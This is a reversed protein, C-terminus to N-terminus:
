AFLDSKLLSVVRYPCLHCVQHFMHYDAFTMGWDGDCNVLRSFNMFYDFGDRTKKIGVRLYLLLTSFIIM